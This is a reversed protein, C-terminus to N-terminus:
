LMPPTVRLRVGRRGRPVRASFHAPKVILVDSALHDLVREATNGILVRKLGSRSIAGMVVLSARIRQTVEEIGDIPHREVLHRRARAIGSGELLQAFQRRAHAAAEQEIRATITAAAEAAGNIAPSIGLPTPTYAHMAHLTGRLATSLRDALRLIERDLRGPKAFTHLPDVAALVVPHRWPRPKKVLLVPVPALRLLEWDSYHLLWPAVHRGAHRAALILDARTRLARRVISEYAPFDWEAAVSVEVDHRRMRAASRELQSEVREAWARELQRTSGADDLQDLYLPTDIAHFLEIRAGLARALQTAKALVPASTEDPQKVAVLIRRIEPM